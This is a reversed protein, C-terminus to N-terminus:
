AAKLLDLFKGIKTSGSIGMMDSWVEPKTATLIAFKEQLQQYTAPRAPTGPANDCRAELHSGDTTWVSISAPASQPWAATEVPDEQVNIRGALELSNGDPHDFRHPAADGNILATAVAFPISFRRSLANQGAQAAIKMNNATTRVLVRKVEEPKLPALSRAAEIAAHTLACASNLKFYSSLIQPNQPDPLPSAVRDAVIGDFATDLTGSSGTWGADAYRHALIGM